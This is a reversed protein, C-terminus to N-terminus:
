FYRFLVKICLIASVLIINKIMHFSNIGPEVIKWTKNVDIWGIM